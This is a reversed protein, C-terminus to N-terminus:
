ISLVCNIILLRLNRDRICMELAQSAWGLLMAVALGVIGFFSNLFFLYAVMISNSVLSILAPIRFEGLSQLIGM